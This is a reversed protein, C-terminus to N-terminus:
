NNESDIVKQLEDLAPAVPDPDREGDNWNALARAVNLMAQKYRDSKGEMRKEFDANM